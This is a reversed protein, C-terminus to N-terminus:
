AFAEEKDKWHRDLLILVIKSSISNIKYYASCKHQLQHYTYKMGAPLRKEM